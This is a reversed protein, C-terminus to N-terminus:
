IVAMVRGWISDVPPTISSRFSVPLLWTERAENCSLALSTSITVKSPGSSLLFGVFQLGVFFHSTAPIAKSPVSVNVNFPVDIVMAASWILSCNWTASVAVKVCVYQVVVLQVKPPATNMMTPNGNISSM